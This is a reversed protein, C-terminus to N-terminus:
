RAPERILCAAILALVVVGPLIWMASGFNMAWGFIPQIFACSLNLFIALLSLATGTTEPSNVEALMPYSIVQSSMLFGAVFFAVSLCGTSWANGYILAVFLIILLVAGGMMPLKRSHLRDSIFGTLPSGIIIGFFLLGTISAAETAGLGHSQRLYIEGFLTGLVVLPLNVLCTFISCYWNQSIRCVQWLQQGLVRWTALALEKPPDLIFCYMGIWLVIGILGNLGMSVRWTVKTLLFALPAQALVGGLLAITIILGMALALHKGALWRSALRMSGLFAFANGLGGIAHFVYALALAHSIALGFSALVTLGMVWLCLARTSYHDLLIGAPLLVLADTVFYSAQLRGLGAPSLSFAALLEQSLSNFMAMQFYAYFFFLAAFLSVLWPTFRSTQM